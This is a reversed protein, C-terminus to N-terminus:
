NVWSCDLVQLQYSITTGSVAVDYTHGAQTKWGSPLFRIAYKSGYDAGLSTQTVAAPQGNDLVTVTGANVNLTDSQITWGTTDVKTTTIATIPIPGSPPWAVFPLNAKGTGGVQYFCSAKAMGFGVPGLSNALIWRRHGMTDANSADEAMFGDIARVLAGSSISSKGAATGFEATYCLWTTPPAHSLANNATQLLACGQALSDMAPDETVAPMGALFRYLNVLKLAHPRGLGTLEGPTCSAANGTWTGEALDARDETWRQCIARAEPWNGVDPSTGADMTTGGTATKGGTRAGGSRVTGGAQVDGGAAVVGGTDTANLPPSSQCALLPMAMIVPFLVRQSYTPYPASM